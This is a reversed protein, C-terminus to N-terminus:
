AGAIKDLSALVELSAAEMANIADFGRAYEGNHFYQVAARGSDHFAKHPAEMDRFGPRQSFMQRGEGEYYWKGLRCHAHDAFDDAGKDSLCMFVKYIEFKYVLHDIKAVEAFSRLAAGSITDEMKRSLTLLNKM